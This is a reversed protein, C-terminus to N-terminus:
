NSSKKKRYDLPTIGTEKKFLRTFYSYNGYGVKDSISNVSLKTNLLLDKATEIRKKIIYNMLSYGTEKKFLRAVYDPDLYVIEALSNRNIDECFHINIYDCIISAVSNESSSFAVYDLAAKVLYSIYMIMSELSNTSLELLIDNTKGTILKHALIGKEKLFSYILQTIDIQFNLLVKNNLKNNNSLVTLYEQCYDVFLDRKELQLYEDLLKLHPLTYETNVPRYDQQMFVMNQCKIINSEMSRVKKLGKHFETLTTPLSIYCSISSKYKTNIIQILKECYKELINAQLIMDTNTCSIIGIFSSSGPNLELLVDYTSLLSGFVSEYSSKFRSTLEQPNSCYYNINNDESLTVTYLEFIIILFKDSMTLSLHYKSLHSKIENASLTSDMNIFSGWFHEPINAKIDDWMTSINAAKKAMQNDKVKNIAKKVILELKDFEIPKLYYELSQLEIAKQAFAFDAYNTLFITQIDYNKERIWTLLDIGSGQPMDIDTILIHVPNEEIVQKAQTINSANYVKDLGLSKWKMNQNLSGLVYRDDDVLLINM